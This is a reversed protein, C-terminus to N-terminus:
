LFDFIIGEPNFVEKSEIKNERGEIIKITLSNIDNGYHIFERPHYQTVYSYQSKKNIIDYALEKAQFLPVSLPNHNYVTKLTHLRTYEMRNWLQTAISQGRFEEKVYISIMGMDYFGWSFSKEIMPNFKMPEKLLWANKFSEENECHIIGIPGENNFAVITTLGNISLQNNYMMHMRSLFETGRNKKYLKNQMCWNFFEASIDKHIYTKFTLTMNKGSM